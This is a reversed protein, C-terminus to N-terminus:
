RIKITHVADAAGLDFSAAAWKAPGANGAADNSFAFPETPMGFPSTGMNGDGDIDHFAKVAYRGPALGAFIAEATDGKVPAMLSAVPQGGADFAAESAFLSLLVAGAPTEIGAFRVTLAPAASATSAVSAVSAVAAPHAAFASTANGTVALAIVAAATVAIIKM